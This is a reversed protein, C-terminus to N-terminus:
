ARRARRQIQQWFIRESPMQPTSIRKRRHWLARKWDRVQKASPTFTSQHSAIGLIEGIYVAEWRKRGLKKIVWEPIWESPFPEAPWAIIEGPNHGILLGRVGGIEYALDYFLEAASPVLESSHDIVYAGSVLLRSEGPDAIAGTPGLVFDPGERPLSFDGTLFLSQRKTDRGSRAEITARAGTPMDRPLAFVTGGDMPELLNDNCYVETGSSGGTLEVLPPAFDFYEYRAGNRIGGVLRLRVGSQFSLMDSRFRVVKDDNAAEIRARRWSQPLGRVIEIENFGTCQTTAWQELVPWLQAPYCLYFPSGRPVVRIEILDSLGEQLGSAFIRIRRGPLKLQYGPPSSRLTLGRFWNIQSADLPEGTERKVLPLSWQNVDEGAYFGGELDLGMEPFEHNLKCRIFTRAVGTVNDLALSIRLGGFALSPSGSGSGTEAITGDWSSLEEAVTDLLLTHLEDSPNEAIQITRTRLLYKATRSRLARAIEDQPHFTAPDLSTSFFIRPLARRDQEALISQSRPYGIHRFGGTTRSQFIGLDGHRDVVTWDGLDDWLQRMQNFYPLMGRDPDGLLDRLRPYYANAPYEGDAGAALVFLALHAIYPPFDLGRGRWSRFADLAQQCVGQRYSWPPGRKVAELFEGASPSLKGKVESILEPTVYLYVNQGAMEPNFFHAALANNWRLFANM